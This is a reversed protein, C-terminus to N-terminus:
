IALLKNIVTHMQHGTNLPVALNLCDINASFKDWSFNANGSKCIIVGSFYVNNAPNAPDIIYPAQHDFDKM